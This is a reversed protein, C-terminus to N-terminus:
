VAADAALAGPLDRRSRIDLKRYAGSLHVEVTKPTVFLAQAIERNTRGEAALAAVRLERATLSEVGGLAATRPRAGAARLESRVDDVLPPCACAEALELAQRLPDRADTPSGGRRLAGGLSALARAYELRAQSGALVDVAERLRDIGADGQLEGLLRLCRGIASPAGTARALELEAEIAAIAEDGRGLAHLARAKLSQAPKWEPHVVWPALRGMDEAVALAEAARGDALLLEARARRWLNAGDSPDEDPVPEGLGEWGGATDGTTVRHWAYLGRAWSSGTSDAGWANQLGFAIGLSEGAEELDRGMNFLGNWLHLSSTGFVSGRRFAEDRAVDIHEATYTSDSLILAVIGASWALGGGGELLGGGALSELALAEIETAPGGGAAWAFAAAAALMKAGTDDGAPHDRYAELPELARADASGFFVSIFEVTQLAQRLQILEPPLEAAMRHTLEYAEAPRGIFM